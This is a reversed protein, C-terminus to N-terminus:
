NKCSLWGDGVIHGARPLDTLVVEDASHGHDIGAFQYGNSRLFEDQLGGCPDGICPAKSACELRYGEALNLREGISSQDQTASEIM